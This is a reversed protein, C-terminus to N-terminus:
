AKGAMRRVIAIQRQRSAEVAQEDIPQPDTADRFVRLKMAAANVQEATPPAPAPLALPEPKPEPLGRVPTDDIRPRLHEPLRRDRQEREGIVRYAERLQARWTGLDDTHVDCASSWGGMAQVAKWGLEGIHKRAKDARCDSCKPVCPLCPGFKRRADSVRRCVDAHTEVDGHQAAAAYERILAVSPFAKCESCARGFASRLADDPLDALNRRWIEMIRKDEVKYATCAILGGMLTAFENPNM